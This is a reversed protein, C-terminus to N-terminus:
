WDGGGVARGGFFEFGVGGGWLGPCWVGRDCVGCVVRELMRMVLCMYRSGLVDLDWSCSVRGDAVNFKAMDECREDDDQRPRCYEDVWAM